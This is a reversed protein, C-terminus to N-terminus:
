KHAIKAAQCRELAMMTRGCFSLTSWLSMIVWAPNRLHEMWCNWTWCRSSANIKILFHWVPNWHIWRGAWRATMRSNPIEFFALVFGANWCISEESPSWRSEIVWKRLFVVPDALIWYLEITSPRSRMKLRLTKSRHRMFRVVTSRQISDMRPISNAFSIRM